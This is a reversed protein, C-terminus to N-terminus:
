SSAENGQAVLHEVFIRNQSLYVTADSTDIQKVMWTPSLFVQQTDSSGPFGTTAVTPLTSALAATLFTSQKAGNFWFSCRETPKALPNFDFGLTFWKNAVLTAASAIIVQTVTNSASQYVARLTANATAGLTQFGFFSKSAALAGTSNVLDASGGLVGMFGVFFSQVGAAVSPVAIRTEWRVRSVHHFPWTDDEDGSAFVVAQGGIPGLQVASLEHQTTTTIKCGGGQAAAAGVTSGATAGTFLNYAGYNGTINAAQVPPCFFDDQHYHGLAPNRDIAAPDFGDWLEATFGRGQGAIGGATLAPQVQYAM